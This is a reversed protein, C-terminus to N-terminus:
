LMSRQNIGKILISGQIGIFQSNVLTQECYEERKVYYYDLINVKPLYFKAKEYHHYSSLRDSTGLGSAM